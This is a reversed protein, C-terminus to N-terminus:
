TIMTYTLESGPVYMTRMRNVKWFQTHCWTGGSGRVAEGLSVAAGSRREWAGGGGGDDGALEVITAGAKHRRTMSTYM